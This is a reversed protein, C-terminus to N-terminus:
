GKVLHVIDVYNMLAMKCCYRRGLKNVINQARKKYEENDNVIGKSIMDFDVGFDDCLKKMEEEYVLVKNGLIEGCSCLIYLM